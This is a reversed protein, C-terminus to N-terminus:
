LEENRGAAGLRLSVVVEGVAAGGGGSQVGNRSLGKEGFKRGCPLYEYNSGLFDMPNDEFREPEDWYKPDRGLAWVNILVQAGVPITYGNVQCEERCARPILPIAPHMRLTEKIVLKLYKLGRLDGEEKIVGNSERFAERIEAQLKIRVRPNRM